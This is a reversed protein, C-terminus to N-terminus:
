VDNFFTIKKPQALPGAAPHFPAVYLEQPETIRHRAFVIHQGGGILAAHSSTGVDALLVREGASIDFKVVHMRAHFEVDCLLHRDDMWRVNTLNYDWDACLSRAEKTAINYLKLTVSDSEYQPTVMSSWLVHSGDPSLVPSIDYGPNGASLEIRADPCDLPALYVHRDTTWAEDPMGPRRACYVFHTGNADFDDLGGFPPFPCHSQLGAMLDRPPGSVCLRGDTTALPLEFVHMRREDLWEDWNRVPLDAYVFCQIGSDKVLQEATATYAVSDFVDGPAQPLQPSPEPFVLLSVFMRGSRSWWLHNVPVPLSTLQHMEGSAIDHVFM